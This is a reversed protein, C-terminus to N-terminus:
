MMRPCTNDRLATEEREERAMVEPRCHKSSCLNSRPAEPSCGQTRDRGARHCHANSRTRPPRRTRCHGSTRPARETPLSLPYPVQSRFSPKETPPQAQPLRYRSSRRIHRPEWMRCGRKRDSGGPHSHDNSGLCRLTRMMRLCMNGRQATEERGERAMVQPRCHKSSCLNSRPAEPSCGQTRDLGDRHCHASSRTRPPRRTKCHGSTRPARETPLSPPRPVQSRFPTKQTPPQAQPLPYRSSRRIHRPEWMRCGRMRDSGGPHSHDSSGLCRLTRMMRPCTNDRLATEEREERAMVQPRCHKSSCLNSRPAEPSCGQTRDRGARHYHANSRTRPPRRTKCHGNTRPQMLRLVASNMRWSERTMQPRLNSCATKKKPISNTSAFGDSHSAVCSVKVM